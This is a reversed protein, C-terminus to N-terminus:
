STKARTAESQLLYSPCSLVPLECDGRSLRSGERYLRAAYAARVRSRDSRISSRLQSRADSAAAASANDSPARSHGKFGKLLSLCKGYTELLASVGAGFEGMKYSRAKNHQDRVCVFLLVGAIDTSKRM